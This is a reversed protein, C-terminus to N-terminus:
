LPTHDKATIMKRKNDPYLPSPSGSQTDKMQRKALFPPASHVGQQDWVWMKQNCFIILVDSFDDSIHEGIFAIADRL